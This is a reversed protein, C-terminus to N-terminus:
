NEYPFYFPRKIKPEYFNEPIIRFESPNQGAPAEKGPPSLM